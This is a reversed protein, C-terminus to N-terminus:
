YTIILPSLYSKLSCMLLAVSLHVKSLLLSYSHPQGTQLSVLKTFLHTIYVYVFNTFFFFNIVERDRVDNSAYFDEEGGPEETGSDDSDVKQPLIDFWNINVLQSLM